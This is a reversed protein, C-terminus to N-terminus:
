MKLLQWIKYYISIGKKRRFPHCPFHSDQTKIGRQRCNGHPVSRRTGSAQNGRHRRTPLISSRRGHLVGQRQRPHVSIQVDHVHLLRSPLLGDQDQGEPGVGSLHLGWMAAVTRGLLTRLTPAPEGVPQVPRPPSRQLRHLESLPQPLVAAAGSSGLARGTSFDTRQM